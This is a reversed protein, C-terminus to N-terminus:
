YHYTYEKDLMEKYQIQALLKAERIRTFLSKPKSGNEPVQDHPQSAEYLPPSPVEPMVPRKPFPMPPPMPMPQQFPIFPMGIPQQFFGPTSPQWPMQNSPYFPMPPPPFFPNFEIKKTDTVRNGYVDTYTMKVTVSPQTPKKM